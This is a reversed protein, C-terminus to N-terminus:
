EAMVSICLVEVPQDRGTGHTGTMQDESSHEQSIDRIGRTGGTRGRRWPVGSSRRINSQPVRCRSGDTAPHLIDPRKSSSDELSWDWWVRGAPGDTPLLNQPQM